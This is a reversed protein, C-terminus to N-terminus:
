CGRMSLVTIAIIATLTIIVVGWKKASNEPKLKVKEKEGAM